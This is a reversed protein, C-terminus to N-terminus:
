QSSAKQVFQLIATEETDFPCDPVILASAGPKAITKVFKPIGYRFPINTYTMVAVPKGLKVVKELLALSKAVTAGSKIAEDSAVAIAPGDAMPDSFPIQLEIIDAGGNVAAQVGPLDNKEVALFLVQTARDLQQAHAVAIWTPQGLVSLASFSLPSLSFPSASLLLGACLATILRQRSITIKFAYRKRPM